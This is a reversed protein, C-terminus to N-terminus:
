ARRILLNRFPGQREVRWGEPVAERLEDARYSRRISTLGDERIFSAPLPLTAASFLAYGVRTRAIDSHVVLRGALAESDALLGALQADDLHHLLHNSTVVDYRAGAAVLDATYARRLSVGPVPPLSSMFAGAREDPDIATVELALGERAAWRAFARPIDGAGSGVDLLTTARTTSLAPRIHRVWTRRWGSVAANVLRFQRYTNALRVPDCDPRDMQEVAHEDRRALFDM